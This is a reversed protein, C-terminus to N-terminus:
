RAKPKPHTIKAQNRQSPHPIHAVIFISKLASCLPAKASVPLSSPLLCFSARKCVQCTRSQHWCLSTVLPCLQGAAAPCPPQLPGQVSLLSMINSLHQPFNPQANDFCLLLPYIKCCHAAFDEGLDLCFTSHCEPSPPSLESSLGPKSIGNKLFSKCTYLNPHTHTCPQTLNQGKVM